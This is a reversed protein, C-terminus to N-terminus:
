RSSPCDRVHGELHQSVASAPLRNLRSTRGAREVRAERPVAPPVLRYFSGAAHAFVPGAESCGSCRGDTVRLPIADIERIVFDTRFGTRRVVCELCFAAHRASLVDLVTGVVRMALFRVKPRIGALSSSPRKPRM